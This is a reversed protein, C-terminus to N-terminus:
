TRFDKNYFIAFKDFIHLVEDEPKEPYVFHIIEHIFAEMSPLFIKSLLFPITTRIDRSAIVDESWQDDNLVLVIYKDYVYKKLVKSRLTFGYVSKSPRTRMLERGVVDDQLNIDWFM